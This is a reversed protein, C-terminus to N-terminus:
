PILTISYITATNGANIMHGCIDVAVFYAGNLAGINVDVTRRGTLTQMGTSAAFASLGRFGGTYKWSLVGAGQWGSTDGSSSINIDFRATSYPTLDISLQSTMMVGRTGDVWANTALTIVSGVNLTSNGTTGSTDVIGFGGSVGVDGNDFVYLIFGYWAGNQYIKLDKKVWSGSVYQYAISPYVMLTGKKLANFPRSSNTATTIWVMGATPTSPATLSLISDTIAVATNVWLTNEAPTSPATTGGVIKYNLSAGGSRRVILGDSM